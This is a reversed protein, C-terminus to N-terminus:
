LVKINKYYSIAEAEEIQFAVRATLVIKYVRAEIDKDYEMSIDRYVGFILNLPDTYLGKEDPMQPVPSVEGGFAYATTKGEVMKDGLATARDALTDRYETEQDTSIFHKMRNTNRLYQKPMAKKGRKFLAKSIAAEEMDVVNSQDNSIKLFGDQLALDEDDSDDDSLLGLEEMDTAARGAILEIITQRFAAPGSNASENNAAQAREINDEVVDYPLYVTAMLEHATLKVQETRPKARKGSAMATGSAPAAHLIRSGFGIKNIKRTPAGMGVVRVSNMITPQIIMKRVFTGAQEPNLLGGDNTLDALAIDAKKLLSKNSAM